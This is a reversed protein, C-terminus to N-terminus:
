QRQKPRLHRARAARAEPVQRCRHALSAAPVAQPELARLMEDLLLVGPLIPAGPFTARSPRTGKSVTVTAATRM